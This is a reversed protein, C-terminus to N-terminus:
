KGEVLLGTAEFDANNANWESKLTVKLDYLDRLQWSVVQWYKNAEEEIQIQLLLHHADCTIKKGSTFYFLRYHTDRKRKQASTKLELFVKESDFELYLDPYGSAGLKTPKLVTKKMEEIIGDELKKGVDNARNGKFRIGARNVANLFNIMAGGILDVIKRDVANNKDVKIITYDCSAKLVDRFYQKGFQKQLGFVENLEVPMFAWM